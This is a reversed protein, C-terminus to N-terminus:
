VATEDNQKLHLIGNQLNYFDGNPFRGMLRQIAIQSRIGRKCYFVIPDDTQLAETQSFLSRLPILDGGINFAEHESQERVDVLQFQRNEDQWRRLEDYSIQNILTTM